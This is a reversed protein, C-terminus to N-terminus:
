QPLPQQDQATRRQETQDLASRLDPPWIERAQREIDRTRQLDFSAKEASVTQNPPIEGTNIDIRAILLGETRVLRHRYAPDDPGSRGGCGPCHDARCTAGDARSTAKRRKTEALGFKQDEDSMLNRTRPQADMQYGASKNAISNLIRADEPNTSPSRESLLPPSRNRSNNSSSHSFIAGLLRETTDESM